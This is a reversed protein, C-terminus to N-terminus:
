VKKLTDLTKFNVMRCFTSPVIVSIHSTNNTKRAAASFAGVGDGM